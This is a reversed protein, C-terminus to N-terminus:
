VRYQLHLLVRGCSQVDPSSGFIAPRMELAEIEALYIWDVGVCQYDPCDHALGCAPSLTKGRSRDFVIHGHAELV